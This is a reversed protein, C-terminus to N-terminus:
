RSKAKRYKSIRFTTVVITIVVPVFWCLIFSLKQNKELDGFVRHRDLYDVVISPSLFVGGVYLSWFVIRQSKRPYLAFRAYILLLGSAVLGLALGSVIIEVSM